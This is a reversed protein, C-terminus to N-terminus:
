IFKLKFIIKILYVFILSKLYVQVHAMKMNILYNLLTSNFRDLKSFLICSKSCRSKPELMNDIATMNPQNPRNKTNKLTSVIEILLIRSATKLFDYNNFYILLESNIM